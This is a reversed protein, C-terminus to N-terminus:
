APAKIPRGLEALRAKGQEVLAAVMESTWIAATGERAADVKPQVVKEMDDLTAWVAPRGNVAFIDSCLPMDRGAVLAADLAKTHTEHWRRIQVCLRCM